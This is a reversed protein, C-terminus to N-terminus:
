ATQVPDLRSLRHHRSHCAICLWRVVLPKSYDDHHAQLKRARLCRSCREPVEIDGRAVALGLDKRASDKAIVDPRKRYQRMYARIYARTREKFFEKNRAYYRQCAARYSARGAPTERRDREAKARCPNCTTRLKGRLLGFKEEPQDGCAICIM